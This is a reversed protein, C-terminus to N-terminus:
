LRKGVSYSFSSGRFLLLREIYQQVFLDAEAIATKPVFVVDDRGLMADEGGDGTFLGLVNLVRGSPKPSNMNIVVVTELGGVSVDVGARALAQVVTLPRSFPFQGPLTVEGLVYFVNSPTDQIITSVQIGRYQADYATKVLDNLEAATLGAALLDGVVPLTLFGDPRIHGEFIQGRRDSSIMQKLEDIRAGFRTLNIFIVPDRFLDAYLEELSKVLQDVSLGAVQISGKYPLTIKGDPRVQYAGNIEAHDLVTIQIQDLIDLIYDAGTMRYELNYLVDISDGPMLTYNPVSTLISPSGDPAMTTPLVPSEIRPGPTFPEQPYSTCAAALGVSAALGARLLNRRHKSPENM